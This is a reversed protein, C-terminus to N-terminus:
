PQGATSPLRRYEITWTSAWTRGGDTTHENEWRLADRTIDRWVLRKSGAAQGGRGTVELIFRDNQWGGEYWARYGQNDWYEQMWTGRDRDHHTVSAGVYQDGDDPAVFLEYIRGEHESVTNRGTVPEGNAGAFTVAWRGLWFNV